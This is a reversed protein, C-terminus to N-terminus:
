YLRLISYMPWPFTQNNPKNKKKRYVFALDTTNDEKMESKCKLIYLSKYTPHGYPLALFSM